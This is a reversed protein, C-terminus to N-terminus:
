HIKLSIAYKSISNHLKMNFFGLFNLKFNVENRLATTIGLDSISFLYICILVDAKSEDM